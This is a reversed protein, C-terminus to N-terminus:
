KTELMGDSGHMSTDGTHSLTPCCRNLLGPTHEGFAAKEVWVDPLVEVAAIHAAGLGLLASSSRGAGSRHTIARLKSRQTM